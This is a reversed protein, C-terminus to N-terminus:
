NRMHRSRAMPWFSCATGPRAEREIQDAGRQCPGHMAACTYDTTGTDPNDRRKVEGFGNRTYTNALSRPDAYTAIDDQAARMVNVQALGQDTERILRQGNYAYDYVGGCPDTVTTMAAKM